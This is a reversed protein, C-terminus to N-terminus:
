AALLGTDSDQAKDRKHFGFPRLVKLPRIYVYGYHHNSVAAKIRCFLKHIDLTDFDVCTDCDARLWVKHPVFLVLKGLSEVTQM